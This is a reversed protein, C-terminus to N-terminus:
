LFGGAWNRVVDVLRRRHVDLTYTHEEQQWFLETCYQAYGEVGIVRELQGQQNYYRVAFETFVSLVRGKRERMSVFASRMQELTPTDRIRPPDIESESAEPQSSQGRFRRKVWAVYRAVQMYKLIAARAAFGADPFCIPDLLLLGVVRADNPALRVADDAGSCLGALVLKVPGLRSELGRVIEEHDAAVSQQSIAGERLPSDGRGALDVRLSGIGIRALERALFVYLRHPGVRHLVGANFFVFWPLAHRDSPPLDPLTLIGFLRGGEGFHVPEEILVTDPM